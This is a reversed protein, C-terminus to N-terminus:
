ANLINLAADAKEETLGILPDTRVWHDRIRDPLDHLSKDDDIIVYDKDLGYVSGWQLIEDYRKLKNVKIQSYDDLIEVDNVNNLRRNFINKWEAKDYRNRHTSTLIITAKTKQLLLDLSQEARPTFKYFGDANLDVRKWSAAPVMVGDIDLLIFKGQM